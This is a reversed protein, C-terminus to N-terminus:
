LCRSKGPAALDHSLLFPLLRVGAQEATRDLWSKLPEDNLPLNLVGAFVGGLFAVPEQMMCRGHLDAHTGRVAAGAGAVAPTHPASALLQLWGVGPDHMGTPPRQCCTEIDEPAAGVKTALEVIRDGPSKAASAVVHRRSRTPVLRQARVGQWSKSGDYRSPAVHRVHTCRASTRGQHTGPLLGANDEPVVVLSTVHALSRRTCSSAFPFLSISRELSLFRTQPVFGRLLAGSGFVARECRPRGPAQIRFVASCTCHPDQRAKATRKRGRCSAVCM